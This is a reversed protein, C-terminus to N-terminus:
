ASTSEHGTACKTERARNSLAKPKGDTQSALLTNERVAGIPIFSGKGHCGLIRLVGMKLSDLSTVDLASNDPLTAHATKASM